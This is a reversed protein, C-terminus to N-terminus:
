WNGIDDGSEVKDPGLSFIDFGEKNKAGPYRYQYEMQWPDKPIDNTELYPGSWNNSNGPATILAQLGEETTPYTGHDVRYRFLPAKISENVFIRATDAQSGGLIKDVNAVGFAILGALIAMVLLIELLTFGSKRNTKYICENQARTRLQVNKMM